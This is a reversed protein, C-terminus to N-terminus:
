GLLKEIVRGERVLTIPRGTTTHYEKKPDIGIAQYFTAAVDDPRYGEHAPM